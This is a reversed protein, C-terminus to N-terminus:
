PANNALELAKEQKNKLYSYYYLLLFFPFGYIIYNGQRLLTAIFMVLLANSVIWYAGDKTRRRSLRFYFLFFFVLFLGLFGTESMLRIFMSCADEKNMEAWWVDNISFENYRDFAAPHSGFGTGVLPHDGINRVAVQLNNFLIMVSGNKLQQPDHIQSYIFVDRADDFRMRFRPVLEYLGFFTVVGLGGALVITKLNGYNRLLLLMAAFVAIYGTSSFSFIVALIILTSSFLNVFKSQLKVINHLSVFFAASLVTAIGAPEGFLAAPLFEYDPDMGVNPRGTLLTVDYGPVFGIKFSFLQVFFHVSTLVCCKMYFGFMQKVDYDFEKIYYYFFLFTAGTGTFFKILYSWKNYGTATYFVDILFFFIAFGVLYVPITKHKYALIPLLILFLLHHLFFQYNSLFHTDISTFVSIFFTARLVNKLM